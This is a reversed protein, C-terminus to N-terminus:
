GVCDAQSSMVLLKALLPSLLGMKSEERTKYNGEWGNCYGGIRGQSTLLSSYMIKKLKEEYDDSRKQHM